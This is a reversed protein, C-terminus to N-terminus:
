GVLKSLFSSESEDYKFLYEVTDSDTDICYVRTVGDTWCETECFSGKMTHHLTNYMSFKGCYKELLKYQKEFNFKGSM